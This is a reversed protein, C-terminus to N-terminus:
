APNGPDPSIHGFLISRYAPWSAHWAALSPKPRESFAAAVLLANIILFIAPVFPYGPCVFPRPLDPRRWRLVYISSVTLMSFIALGVSLYILLQEFNVLWLLVLAWAAQMITAVAPTGWRSSLKGAILSVPGRSGDCVLRSSRDLRVREALGALDARDCDVAPGRRPSWVIARGRDRSRNVADIRKPNFPPFDAIERVDAASLALAYAVNLALYLLVVIGTGALIARPLQQSPREVEGALYSAANWGTYAYSIYVLSATMTVLLDPSMPPRDNLNSFHGWGGALGAAAMGALIVLKLM